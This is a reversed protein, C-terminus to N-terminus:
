SRLVNLIMKMRRQDLIFGPVAASRYPLYPSAAGPVPDPSYIKAGTIGPDGRQRDYYVTWYAELVNSDRLVASSGGRDPDIGASRLNNSFQGYVTPFDDRLGAKEADYFDRLFEFTELFTRSQKSVVTKPQVRLFWYFDEVTRSYLAYNWNMWQWTAVYAEVPYRDNNPDPRLLDATGLSFAIGKRAYEVAEERTLETKCEELAGLFFERIEKLMADAFGVGPDSQGEFLRPPFARLRYQPQGLLVRVKDLTKRVDDEAIRGNWRLFAAAHVIPRVGSSRYRLFDKALVVIRLDDVFKGLSEKLERELTAAAERASAMPDVTSSNLYIDGTLLVARNGEPGHVKRVVLAEQGAVLLSLEPAIRDLGLHYHIENILASVITRQEPQEAGYDLPPPAEPTVVGTEPSWAEVIEDCTADRENVLRFLRTLRGGNESLINWDKDRNRRLLSFRFNPDNAFRCILDYYGDGDYAVYPTVVPGEPLVPPPPPASPKVPTEEEEHEEEGEEREPEVPSEYDPSRLSFM